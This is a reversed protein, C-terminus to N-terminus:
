VNKERWMKEFMDMTLSDEIRFDGVRTRELASMYGGVGLKEGIDRAFSRIYVGSGCPIKIIMEPWTYSILQIAHITVDRLGLNVAKGARALDYSKKGGVNIASFAPPVQKIDGIFKELILEVTNSSPVQFKSIINTTIEGEGDDTTSTSGLTITARYEKDHEVIETLQKTSARTIAVVLVGSAM